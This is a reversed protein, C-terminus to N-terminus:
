YRPYRPRGSRFGVILGVIFVILIVIILTQIGIYFMSDDKRGIQRM